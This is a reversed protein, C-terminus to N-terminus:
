AAGGKKTEAPLFNEFICSAGRSEATKLDGPSRITWSFEPVHWVRRCLRFALRNRDRFKCAIFDPRTLFNGLLNTLVFRLPPAVGGPERFFDQVLQGRLIDPRRRRLWLLARPDFSEMCFDVPFRDLLACTERALRAHNGNVPKLEVILPGKGVFLPLVEELLPITEATGCLRCSKLEAATLDEVRGERGCVRRLLSDHIVALRGDRTLHVDLEAGFGAEAAARFAAVSNEPREENHLGRHAYRCTRMHKWLGRDRYGRLALCWLGLLIALLGALGLVLVTGCTVAALVGGSRGHVGYEELQHLIQEFYLM